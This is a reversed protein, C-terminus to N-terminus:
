AVGALAARFQAPRRALERPLGPSLLPALPRLVGQPHMEVDFAVSSGGHAINAV